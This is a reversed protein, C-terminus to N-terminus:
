PLSNSAVTLDFYNAGGPNSFNNSTFLTTISNAPVGNLPSQPLTPVTGVAGSINSDAKPPDMNADADPVAVPQAVSQKTTGRSGSQALTFPIACVALLLLLYFASRLLHAKITLSIQKKM